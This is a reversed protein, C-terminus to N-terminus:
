GLPRRPVYVCINRPEATGREAATEITAAAAAAAGERGRSCFVATPPNVERPNLFLVERKTLPGAVAFPASSFSPRIKAVFRPRLPPNLDYIDLRQPCSAGVCKREREAVLDENKEKAATSVLEQPWCKSTACMGRPTWSEEAHPSHLVDQRAGPDPQPIMEMQYIQGKRGLANKPSQEERLASLMSVFEGLKVVVLLPSSAKGKDHVAALRVRSMDAAVTVVCLDGSAAVDGPYWFPVDSPAEEAGFWVVSRGALPSNSLWAAGDDSGAFVLSTTLGLVEPVATSAAPPGSAPPALALSSPPPSAM